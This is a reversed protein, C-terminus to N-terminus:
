LAPGDGGQQALFREFEEGLEDATPLESSEALLNTRGIARSFSDYQEELARLEHMLADYAADSLEPADQAYYLYNARRIQQRVEEVRQQEQAGTQATEPPLSEDTTTPM